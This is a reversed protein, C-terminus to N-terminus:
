PTKSTTERIDYCFLEGHYRLYLRGDHIVPHTWVDTKKGPVLRFKGEFKFDSERPRLLAMEGEESLVYLREDAYLVSGKALINNEYRVSGTKADV